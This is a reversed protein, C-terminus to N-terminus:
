QSPKQKSLIQKRIEALSKRSQPATQPKSGLNQSSTGASLAAKSNGATDAKQPASTQSQPSMKANGSNESAGNGSPDEGPPAAAPSPSDSTSGGSFLKAMGSFLGPLGAAPPDSTQSNASNEMASASPSNSAPAQGVQAEPPPSQQSADNSFANSPSAKPMVLEPGAADSRSPATSDPRQEPQSTAGAVLPSTDGGPSAAPSPRPVLGSRQPPQPTPVDDSPQQVPGAQTLPQPPTTSASFSDPGTTGPQAFMPGPSPGLSPEGPPSEIRERVDEWLSRLRDRFRGGTNPSSEALGPQRTGDQSLAQRRAQWRKRLPRRPADRRFGPSNLEREQIAGAEPVSMPGPSVVAAQQDSVAVAEPEASLATPLLNALTVMWFSSILLLGGSLLFLRRFTGRGLRQQRVM